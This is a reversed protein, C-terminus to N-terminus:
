KYITSKNKLDEYIHCYNDYRVKSILGESLAERVKCKPEHIHSCPTFFCGDYPKFEEYYDKLEDYKINFVDLSTFGPTDIIYTGESVPIIESHRTTHRGRKLKNSIDGTQMYVNDQLSNIITSKGVGSPGAICTTMGKILSKLELTGRNLSASTVVTKIGSNKYIEEYEISLDKGAIDEKNFCLIIPINQELFHLILKDLMLLSPEPNKMAVVILAQDINSVCPRILRNKRNQIDIINGEMDAESIIDITVNDGIVPKIGEKRFTGKAKCLYVKSDDTNVSYVGAIGKIIKGTVTKNLGEVMLGTYIYRECTGYYGM